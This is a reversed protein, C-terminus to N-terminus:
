LIYQHVLGSGSGWEIYEETFCVRTNKVLRPIDSVPIRPAIPIVRVVMQRGTYHVEQYPRVKIMGNLRNPHHGAEILM